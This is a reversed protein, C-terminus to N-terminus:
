HSENNPKTKEKIAELLRVAALDRERGMALKAEILADLELIRLEGFTTRQCISRNLVQDYDGLGTVQSLCDLMGLDTQLYLNQLRTALEQTLQFPLRNPTMRHYPNLDHVATQLRFLNESTFRCCIDLDLTVLPVGHFVGCVGGIVVFDVKHQSLRALLARDDQQPRM